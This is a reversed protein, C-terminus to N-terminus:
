HVAMSCTKAIKQIVHLQKMLLPNNTFFSAHRGCM